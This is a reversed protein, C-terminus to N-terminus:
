LCGIQIGRRIRTKKKDGKLKKGNEEKPEYVGVQKTREIYWRRRVNDLRDKVDNIKTM